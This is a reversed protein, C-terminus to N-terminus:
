ALAKERKGDMESVYHASSFFPDLRMVDSRIDEILRNYRATQSRYATTFLTRALDDKGPYHRYLAGQSVGALSAVEGISVGDVGKAAFLEVAAREVKTKAQTLRPM